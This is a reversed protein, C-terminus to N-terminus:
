SPEQTLLSVRLRELVPHIHCAYALAPQRDSMGWLLGVAESRENVILAGSDGPRSFPAAGEGAEARIVLNNHRLGGAAPEVTAAVDVVRGVTLGTGQGVKFVRPARGGVVDLPHVRAVGRLTMRGRVGPSPLVPRARVGQETLVRATACDVFYAGPPEGPYRYAQDEEAGEDHLEAVPRLSHALFLCTGGEHRVEPQYIPAGRRAGHALLVHRNSVLVVDRRATTGNLAALFGLTGLGSGGEALVRTQLVGRLNTLALGPALVPAARAELAVTRVGVGTPLVDTAFGAVRAPLREARRLSVAPRKCRVYVRLAPEDTVAGRVEKWGFGVGCVGPYRLFEREVEPLWHQLRTVSM